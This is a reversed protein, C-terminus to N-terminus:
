GMPPKQLKLGINDMQEAWVRELAVIEFGHQETLSVVEAPSYLTFGHQTFPLHQVAQRSRFGLVLRGGPKLVRWLEALCDPPSDWFYLTNVTCIGDMSQDPFPLAQLCGEIVQLHGSDCALSHRQVIESIMEASYDLAHVRGQTGVASLLSNLFAGNGPGVELVTEQATAALLRYSLETLRQNSLNMQTAVQSAAEGSPKRLQAALLAPDFEPLPPNSM